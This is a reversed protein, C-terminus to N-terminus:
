LLGEIHRNIAAAEADEDLHRAMRDTHEEVPTHEECDLDDECKFFGVGDCERCVTPYDERDTDTGEECSLNPCWHSDSPLAM